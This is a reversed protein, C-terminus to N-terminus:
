GKEVGFPSYMSFYSLSTEHHIHFSHKGQDQGKDHNQSHDGNRGERSLALFDRGHIHNQGQRRIVAKHHSGAAAGDHRHLLNGYRVEVQSQIAQLLIVEDGFAVTVVAVALGAAVKLRAGRFIGVALDCQKVQVDIGQLNEVAADIGILCTLAVQVLFTQDAGLHKGDAAANTGAEHILEPAAVAVQVVINVVLIRQGGLAPTGSRVLDQEPVTVDDGQAMEGAPAEIGIGVANEVVDGGVVLIRNPAFFNGQGKVVGTCVQAGGTASGLIQVGM